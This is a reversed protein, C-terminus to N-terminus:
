IGIYYTTTIRKTETQYRLFHGMTNFVKFKATIDRTRLYSKFKKSESYANSYGVSIGKITTGLNITSTTSKTVIGTYKESIKKESSSVLKWVERTADKEDSQEITTLNNNSIETLDLASASSLSSGLTLALISLTTLTTSFKKNM